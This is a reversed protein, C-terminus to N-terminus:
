GKLKLSNSPKERKDPILNQGSSVRETAAGPRPANCAWYVHTPAWLMSLLAAFAGMLTVANPIWIKM